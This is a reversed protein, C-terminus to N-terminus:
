TTAEYLDASYASGLFTLGDVHLEENLKKRDIYERLSKAKM